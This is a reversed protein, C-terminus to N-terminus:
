KGNERNRGATKTKMKGKQKIENKARPRVMETVGNRHKNQPKAEEDTIKTNGTSNEGRKVRFEQCIDIENRGGNNGYRNLEKGNSELKWSWVKLNPYVDVCRM